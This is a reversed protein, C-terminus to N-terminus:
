RTTPKRRVSTMIAGLGTILGAFMLMKGTSSGTRPLATVVVQPVPPTDVAVTVTPAATTTAAAHTTTTPALTTTPAETTTTPAETTVPVTTTTDDVVTTTPAETTPTVTTTPAETTTTTQGCTVDSIVLRENNLVWHVSAVGADGCETLHDAGNIGNWTVGCAFASTPNPTNEQWQVTGPTVHSAAYQQGDVVLTTCSSEDNDQHDNTASVVGAGIFLSLTLAALFTSARKFTM